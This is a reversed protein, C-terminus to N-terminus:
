TEFQNVYIDVDNTNIDLNDFEQILVSENVDRWSRTKFTKSIINEKKM